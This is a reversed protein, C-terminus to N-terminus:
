FMFPNMGGTMSLSTAQNCANIAAMTATQTSWNTFQQDMQQQIQLRTMFDNGTKIAITNKILDRAKKDNIRNLVNNTKTKKTNSSKHKKTNSTPNNSLQKKTRRVGWKQGKVGHHYLEDLYNHIMM